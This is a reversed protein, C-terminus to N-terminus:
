EGKTLAQKVLHLQVDWMAAQASHFVKDTNTLVDDNFITWRWGPKIVESFQVYVNIKDGVTGVHDPERWKIM